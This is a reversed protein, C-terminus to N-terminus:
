ITKGASKVFTTPVLMAAYLPLTQVSGAIIVMLVM